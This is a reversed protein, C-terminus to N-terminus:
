LFYYNSNPPHFHATPERAAVGPLRIQATEQQTEVQV